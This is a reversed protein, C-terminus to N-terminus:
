PTDSADPRGVLRVSVPVDDLAPPLSGDLSNAPPSPENPLLRARLADMLTRIMAYRGQAIEAVPIDKNSYVLQFGGSTKRYSSYDNFEYWGKPEVFEADVVIDADEVTGADVPNGSDSLEVEETENYEINFLLHLFTHDANWAAQQALAESPAVISVEYVRSVTIKGNWLKM